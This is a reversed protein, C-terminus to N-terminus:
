RPDHPPEPEGFTMRDVMRGIERLDHMSLRRRLSAPLNRVGEWYSDWWGEPANSNMLHKARLQEEISGHHMPNSRSM